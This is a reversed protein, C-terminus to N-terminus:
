QQQQQYVLLYAEQRLVDKLRVPSVTRDDCHVWQQDAMRCYSSYHGGNMRNGHHRVVAQLEYGPVPGGLSLQLARSLHRQGLELREGFEVHKCM